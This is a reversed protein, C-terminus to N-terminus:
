AFLGQFINLPVKEHKRSYDKNTPSVAISLKSVSLSSLIYQKIEVVLLKCCLCFSKICVRKKKKKTDRKDKGCV